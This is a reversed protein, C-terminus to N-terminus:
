WTLWLHKLNLRELTEMPVVAFDTNDYNGYKASTRDIYWDKPNRWNEGREGNRIVRIIDVMNAIAVARPDGYENGSPWFYGQVAVQPHLWGGPQLLANMRKHIETKNGTQRRYRITITDFLVRTRQMRTALGRMLCKEDSIHWSDIGGYADLYQKFFDRDSVSEVSVVKGGGMHNAILPWLKEQFAQASSLIKNEIEDPM